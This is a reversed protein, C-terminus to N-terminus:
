RRLRMGPGNIHRYVVCRLICSCQDVASAAGYRGAVRGPFVIANHVFVIMGVLAWWVVCPCSVSCSATAGIGRRTPQLLALCVYLWSDCTVGM